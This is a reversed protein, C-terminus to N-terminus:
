FTGVVSVRGEDHGDGNGAGEVGADDARDRVSAGASAGLGDGGEVEAPVAQLGSAGVADRVLHVRVVAWVAELVHWGRLCPLTQWSACHHGHM